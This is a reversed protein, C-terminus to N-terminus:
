VSLIFMERVLSICSAQYILILTAVGGWYKVTTASVPDSKKHIGLTFQLRHLVEVEPNLAELLM